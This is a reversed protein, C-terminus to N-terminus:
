SRYKSICNIDTLPSCKKLIKNSCNQVGCVPSKLTFVRKRLVLENFNSIGAQNVNEPIKSIISNKSVGIFKQILIEIKLNEGSPVRREYVTM